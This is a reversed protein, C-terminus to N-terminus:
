TYTIINQVIYVFAIHIIKGVYDELSLSHADFEGEFFDETKGIEEEAVEWVPTLPFNEPLGGETSIFVKLGDRKDALFAQSKWELVFGESSILTAPLVLWDNAQGAPLYQSTSGLFMDTSEETDKILIWTTGSAFGISQMFSTPTLNDVDYISLGTKDKDNFDYDVLVTQAMAGSVALLAVGLLAFLKKM